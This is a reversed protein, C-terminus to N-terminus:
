VERPLRRSPSQAHRAFRAGYARGEEDFSVAAALRPRQRIRM